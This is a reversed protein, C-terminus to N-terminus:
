RVMVKRGDIIYLGAPLNEMSDSVKVGHLNFVGKRVNEKVPLDISTADQVTYTFVLPKSNGYGGLTMSWVALMEEDIVLQYTGPETIPAEPSVYMVDTYDNEVIAACFVEGDKDFHVGEGVDFFDYGEKLTFTITEIAEVTSGDAPDVTFPLDAANMGAAAMAMM